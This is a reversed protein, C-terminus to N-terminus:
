HLQLLLVAFMLRADGCVVVCIGIDAVVAIGGAVDDARDGVVVGGVDVRVYCNVAVFVVDCYRIGTVVDGGCRVCWCLWRSCQIGVVAIVDVVVVCVVGGGAGVAVVAVNITVVVVDDAAGAGVAEHLLAMALMSLLVLVAMLLVM